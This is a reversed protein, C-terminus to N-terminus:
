PKEAPLSRKDPSDTCRSTVISQRRQSDSMESHPHAQPNLLVGNAVSFLATNGDIGLGLTLIAIARFGPTKALMRLGYRLDQLLTEM